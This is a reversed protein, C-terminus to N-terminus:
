AAIEKEWTNAIGRSRGDADVAIMQHRNLLNSRYSVHVWRGDHEWILQDYDIDSTALTRFALANRARQDLDPLTPREDLATLLSGVEFDAAQGYLHQSHRAGGVLRNLEKCRFGSTILMPLALLDRCPQLTNRCLSRLNECEEENPTNDIGYRRAATSATLEALTFNPSLIQYDLIGREEPLPLPSAELAAEIEDRFFYFVRSNESVRHDKLLGQRRWRNITSRAVHFIDMVQETTLIERGLGGIVNFKTKESM